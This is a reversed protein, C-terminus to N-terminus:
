SERLREKVWSTILGSYNVDKKKALHRLRHEDEKELKISVVLNSKRVFKVERAEELNDAFDALSHKEWFDRAEQFTTLAPLTKSTKPNEREQM